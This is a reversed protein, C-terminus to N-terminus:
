PDRPCPKSCRLGRGSLLRHTPPMSVSDFFCAPSGTITGRATSVMIRGWAKSVPSHIKPTM